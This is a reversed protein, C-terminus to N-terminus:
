PKPKDPRADLALRAEKAAEPQVKNELAIRALADHAFQANQENKGDMVRALARVANLNGIRELGTIFMGGIATAHETDLATNMFPVALPSRVNALFLAAHMAEGGNQAGRLQDWEEVCHRQVLQVADPEVTLRVFEAQVLLSSFTKLGLPGRLQLEIAYDGPADFSAWHSLVIEQTYTEKSSISVEGFRSVQDFSNPPPEHVEMRGSPGTAIFYIQDRSGLNLDLDEDTLNAIALKLVVPETTDIRSYMLSYTVRAKVTQSFLSPGCLSMMLGAGCGVIIGVHPMRM